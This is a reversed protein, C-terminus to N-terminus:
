ESIFISIVVRDRHRQAVTEYIEVIKYIEIIESIEGIESIGVVGSIEVMETIQVIEWTDVKKAIGVVSKKLLVFNILVDLKFNDNFNLVNSLEM